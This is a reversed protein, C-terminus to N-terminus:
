ALAKLKLARSFTVASGSTPTELTGGGENSSSKITGSETGLHAAGGSATVKEVGHETKKAMASTAGLVSFALAAVLCLGLVTFRKM